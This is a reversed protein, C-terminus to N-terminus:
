ILYHLFISYLPALWLHCYPAPANCPPCSLSCICVCASLNHLVWQKEVAVITARVRRWTVNRM